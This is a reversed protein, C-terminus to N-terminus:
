KIEKRAVSKRISLGSEIHCGKIELGLKLDAKIAENNPKVVTEVIQYEPPLEKADIDVCLRGQTPKIKFQWENGLLTDGLQGSAEKLRFELSEQLREFGKAIRKFQDAKAKYENELTAARELVVAYADVKDALAVNALEFANDMEPTLEGGSENLSSELLYISNLIEKLNM